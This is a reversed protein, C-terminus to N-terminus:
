RMYSGQVEYLQLLIYGYSYSYAYKFYFILVTTVKCM